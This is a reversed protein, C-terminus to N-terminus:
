FYQVSLRPASDGIIIEQPHKEGDLIVSTNKYILDVDTDSETMM